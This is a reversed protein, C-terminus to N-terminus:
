WWSYSERVPRQQLCRFTPGHFHQHICRKHYFAGNFCLLSVTSRNPSLMFRILYGVLALCHTVPLAKCLKTLQHREEDAPQALGKAASIPLSNYTINIACPVYNPSRRTLNYVSFNSYSHFASNFNGESLLQVSTTGDGWKLCVARLIISLYLNPTLVHCFQTFYLIESIRIRKIRGIM